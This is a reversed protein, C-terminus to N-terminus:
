AHCEIREALSNRSAIRVGQEWVTKAVAGGVLRVAVWDRRAGDTNGAAGMRLKSVRTHRRNRVANLEAQAHDNQDSAYNVIEATTM